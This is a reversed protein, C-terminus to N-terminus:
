KAGVARMIGTDFPTWVAARQGATKLGNNAWTNCTYFISYTRQAEYFADDAGYSHGAIWQPRSAADREFSTNIYAILRAYQPRTLHLAVCAPGPQPRALFTTHMASTSLWFGARLATSPKLEAWTPTYLYFGKDGWGFAVYNLAPNNSRTHAYPLQRTWDMQDTQVPVVLDVHVGNSRVFLEVPAPENVPEAAVAIRSLVAAVGLYLAVVGVVTGVAYGIIKLTNRLLPAM